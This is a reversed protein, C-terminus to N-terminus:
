PHCECKMMHFCCGSWPPSRYWATSATPLHVTRRRSWCKKRSDPVMTATYGSSGIGRQPRPTFRGGSQWIAERPIGASSLRSNKTLPLNDLYEATLRQAPVEDMWSLNFDERWGVITDDTGRVAVFWTDDPLRITLASFQVQKKECIENVYGCLQLDRYRPADAMQRFLAVIERPVILGLPREDKPDHTFFYEKAAERLTVCRDPTSPVAGDLEVYSLLCFILNDVENLPDNEFPIDGRWTLYDAVTTTYKM